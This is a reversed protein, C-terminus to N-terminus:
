TKVVQEFRRESGRESVILKLVLGIVLAPSSNDQYCACNYRWEPQSPVQFLQMAITLANM